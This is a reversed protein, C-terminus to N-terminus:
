AIDYKIGQYKWVHNGATSNSNVGTNHTIFLSIREPMVGGFCQAVATPGFDYARNSTNSDVNMTGLLKLWGQGVGVSTITEASSTGDMVDQYTPTGDKPAFRRDKLTVKFAWGGQHQFPYSVQKIEWISYREEMAEIGFQRIHAIVFEHNKRDYSLTYTIIGGKM